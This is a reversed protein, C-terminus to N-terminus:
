CEEWTFTYDLDGGRSYLGTKHSRNLSCFTAHPLISLVIKLNSFEDVSEEQERQISARLIWGGHQLSGWAVFAIHLHGLWFGGDVM